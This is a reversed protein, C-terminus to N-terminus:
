VISEAHLSNKETTNRWRLIDSSSHADCGLVLRDKQLLDLFSPAVLGYRLNREILVDAQEAYRLMQVYLPHRLMGMKSLLLGPHVWVLTVPLVRYREIASTFATWLLDIDRPFGHEAIGIVSALALHEDSIDLSGDPLLKAEFGVAAEIAFSNAHKRIASAFSVVDYSPNRRIHELFILTHVSSTRAVNFYDEISLEGDTLKTHLHFLYDSAFPGSSKM